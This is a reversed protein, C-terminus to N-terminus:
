LFVLDGAQPLRSSRGKGQYSATRKDYEAALLESIEEHVQSIFKNLETVYSNASMKKPNFRDLVHQMPGQPKMGTVLEYPSRGGRDKRPTSRMAWQAIKILTNWDKEHKHYYSKLVTNVEKHRAEIYGQSQPHFAAGFVHKIKLNKNTESIVDNVFETGLDSRLVAPFGAVDLFVDEVLFRSWEEADNKPIAKLWCCRTFPCEVHAIYRNGQSSAPYIPGMTDMFLVRFLREHLETRAEATMVMQPKAIHCIKCRRCHTIVDSKLSPWWFMSEVKAITDGQSTHHGFAESDHYLQIIM